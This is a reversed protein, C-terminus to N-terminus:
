PPNVEGNHDTRILFVDGGDGFLDRGAGGAVIFGGDSTQQVSFAFDHVPGGFTQSWLENGNADTRILYADSSVAPYSFTEGAVMRGIHLILQVVSKDKEWVDDADCFGIFEGKCEAIGSNRAKSAGFNKEHRVLKVRKDKKQYSLIIEMSNDESHDDVIILEINKHTQNLVGEISEALIEVKQGKGMSEVLKGKVALSCGTTITTTRM